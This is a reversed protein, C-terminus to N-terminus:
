PRWFSLMNAFHLALGTMIVGAFFAEFAVIVPPHVDVNYAIIKSITPSWGTAVAITEYWFFMAVAAFPSAELLSRLTM